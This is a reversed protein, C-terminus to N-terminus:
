LIIKHLHQMQCPFRDTKWRCENCVAEGSVFTFKHQHERNERQEQELVRRVPQQEHPNVDRLISEIEGTPYLECRCTQWQKLCTMCFEYRCLCKMHICGSKREVFVTCRPCQKYGLINCLNKTEADVAQPNTRGYSMAMISDKLTMYRQFKNDDSLAKRLINDSIELKCCRLPVMSIDKFSSQSLSELCSTCYYHECDLSYCQREEMCSDCMHRHSVVSGSPAHTVNLAKAKTPPWVSADFRYPTDRGSQRWAFEYDQV